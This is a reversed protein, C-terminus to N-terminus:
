YGAIQFCQPNHTKFSSILGVSIFNFAGIEIQQRVVITYVEGNWNQSVFPQPQMNNIYDVYLHSAWTTTGSNKGWGVISKMIQAKQIELIQTWKCSCHFAERWAYVLEFTDILIWARQIHFLAVKVGIMHIYGICSKVTWICWDFKGDIHTDFDFFGLQPIREGKENVKNVIRQISIFVLIDDCFTHM